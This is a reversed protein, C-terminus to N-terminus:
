RLYSHGGRVGRIELDRDPVTLRISAVKTTGLM